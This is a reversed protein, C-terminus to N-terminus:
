IGSQAHSYFLAGSKKPAIFNFNNLGAKDAAFSFVYPVNFLLSIKTLFVILLKGFTAIDFLNKRMELFGRCGEFDFKSCM